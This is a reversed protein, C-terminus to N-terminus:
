EFDVERVNRRARMIEVQERIHGAVQEANRIAELVFEPHSRDSTQMVINGVGFLRYWFPETLTIDRV